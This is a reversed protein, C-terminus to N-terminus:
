RPLYEVPSNRLHQVRRFEIRNQFRVASSPADGVSGRPFARRETELSAWLSTFRNSELYLEM